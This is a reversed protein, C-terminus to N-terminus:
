GNPNGFKGQQIIKRAFGITAREDSEKQELREQSKIFEKKTEERLKELGEKFCKAQLVEAIKERQQLELESLKSKLKEIVEDNTASCRLFFEQKDLRKGPEQSTLGAIIDNLIGKQTLLESQTQTLKETVKLLEAKRTQEQKTKIDLVRQLRWVFRKM